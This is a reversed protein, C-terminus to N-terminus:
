EEIDSTSTESDSDVTEPKNADSIHSGWNPVGLRGEQYRGCSLYWVVAAIHACMGVVRSGARCKCYWSLISCEGYRIWLLYKKASVHRSQIRVRMLNNDEKFIHIDCDGDLHEQIYSSSLKLQYVGCTLERLEDEALRPFNTLDQDGVSTWQVTGRELHREEVYQRLLNVQHLFSYDVLYM